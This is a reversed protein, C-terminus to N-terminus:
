WFMRSALAHVSGIGVGLNSKVYAFESCCAMDEVICEEPIGNILEDYIEWM